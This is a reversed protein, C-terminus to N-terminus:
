LNGKFDGRGKKRDCREQLRIERHLKYLSKFYGFLFGELFAKLGLVDGGNKDHHPYELDCLFM